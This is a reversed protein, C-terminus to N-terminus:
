MRVGGYPGQAPAQWVCLSKQKQGDVQGHCEATSQTEM